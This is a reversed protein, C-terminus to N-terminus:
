LSKEISAVYNDESKLKIRDMLCRKEPTKNVRSNIKEYPEFAISIACACNPYLQTQNLHHDILDWTTKRM